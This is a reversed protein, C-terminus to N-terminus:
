AIAKIQILQQCFDALPREGQHLIQDSEELFLKAHQLAAKAESLIAISGQQAICQRVQHHFNPSTLLNVVCEYNGPIILLHFTNNHAVQNLSLDPRVVLGHQSHILNNTLGLLSVSTGSSRMESLCFVVDSEAFGPAILLAVNNNQASATSLM